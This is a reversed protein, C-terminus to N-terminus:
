RCLHLPSWRAAVQLEGFDFARSKVFSAVALPEVADAAAPSGGKAAASLWTAATAAAAGPSAVTAVKEAGAGAAAAAAAAGYATTTSPAAPPMRPSRGILAVEQTQEKELKL